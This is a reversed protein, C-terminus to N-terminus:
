VNKNSEGMNNCRPYIFINSISISISISFNFNFYHFVQFDASYRLLQCILSKRNQCGDKYGDQINGMPAVTATNLSEFPLNTSDSFWWSVSHSSHKKTKHRDAPSNPKMPLFWMNSTACLMDTFKMDSYDGWTNPKLPPADFLGERYGKCPRRM